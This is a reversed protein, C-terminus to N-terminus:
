WEQLMSQKKIQRFIHIYQIEHPDLIVSIELMHHEVSCEYITIRPTTIRRLYDIDQDNLDQFLGMHAWEDQISGYKQSISRTKVYYFGNKVHNIQINIRVKSHDDFLLPIQEVTVKKEDQLFYQIGMHKYNHCVIMYNEYGDMTIMMHDTQGLLYQGLRNMFDMSYFAPKCIGNYSILGCCGDLLKPEEECEVFLDTGFWYGVMDVESYLNMINKMVYSGKFCSDNLVNRNVVTLNWESIHIPVDMGCEQIVKKLGVIYDRLFFQKQAEMKLSYGDAMECDAITRYCYLSVFDPQINRVSWEHILRQYNIINYTRDYAGGVKTEPCIEKITTYATEFTSFYLEPNGKEFLRPDCWQEFYWQSVEYIGYKNVYHILFMELFQRYSINDPFLIDREKNSIFNDFSDRLIIPKFGLELYPRLRHSVLFDIVKDLIAFNHKRESSNVNLQLEEDYLDWLRIYEFNLKEKLFIIHEQVDSRLVTIVRGVNIMRNWTKPLYRYKETDVCCCEQEEHDEMPPVQQQDLYDILRYELDGPLAEQQGAELKQKKIYKEQYNKPTMLYREKFAKNFSSINSFGNDLAIRAISKNGNELERVAYELRIETLYEGLNKGLKKKIYRSIYATSLYMKESLDNLSIQREYNSHIFSIISNIRVDEQSSANEDNNIIYKAFYSILCELIQYYTSNLHMLSRGDNENKGYYNGICSELLNRIATYQESDNLTSDCQFEVRRVDYYKSVEEVSIVFRAVLSRASSHYSHHQYNNVLIFDKSKLATTKQNVTIDAEGDLVFYIVLNIDFYDIIVKDTIIDFDMIDGKALMLSSM